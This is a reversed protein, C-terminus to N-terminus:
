QEDEDTAEPDDQLGAYFENVSQESAAKARAFDSRLRGERERVLM